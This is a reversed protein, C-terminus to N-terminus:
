VDGEQPITAMIAEIEELNKAAEISKEKAQQEGLIAGVKAAQQESKAIIKTAMEAVSIERASALASILPVIAQEDMLYMQAEKEQRSWTEREIRGYPSAVTRLKSSYYNRIGSLAEAHKKLLIAADIETHNKKVLEKTTLDVTYDMPNEGDPLEAKVYVFYDPIDGARFTEYGTVVGTIEDYFITM